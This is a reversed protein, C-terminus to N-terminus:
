DQLLMGGNRMLVRLLFVSAAQFECFSKPWKASIQIICPKPEMTLKSGGNTEELAITGVVDWFPSVFWFMASDMFISTTFLQGSRAKRSRPPSEWAGSSLPKRPGGGQVVHHLRCHSEHPPSQARGDRNWGACSGFSVPMPGAELLPQLSMTLWSSMYHSVVESVLARTLEGLQRYRAHTRVCWVQSPTDDGMLGGPSFLLFGLNPGRRTEAGPM